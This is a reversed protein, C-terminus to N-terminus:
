ERIKRDDIYKEVEKYWKKLRVPLDVSHSYPLLELYDDINNLNLYILGYGKIDIALVQENFDVTGEVVGHAGSPVGGYDSVRQRLRVKHGKKFDM